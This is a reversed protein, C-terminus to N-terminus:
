QGCSGWGSLVAALDKGDVLGDNNTDANGTAGWQALVASLDKANVQGDGDIDAPCANGPDGLYPKAVPAGSGGMFSSAQDVLFLDEGGVGDLDGRTSLIPANAGLDTEEGITLPGGAGTTDIRVLVAASQTGVTRQVSVIDRDGDGDADILSVDLGSSAGLPAIPVASGFGGGTQGRFLTLVPYASGAGQLVPNANACVVEDKGDGDMDAVDLGVPEGPVNMVQTIGLLGSGVPDLVVVRGPESGGGVTTSSAGGTAVRRGRTTTTTPTSPLSVVQEVGGTSPSFVTLNDGSADGSGGTGVGIGGGGLGMFSTAPAIVCVSRPIGNPNLSLGSTFAPTQSPANNLYVQARNNSTTGVVADIKGDGNVDGVALCSPSSATSVQVSTTGLNGQGDNLLVQLTGPQGAGFDIALALDDFGDGDWDMAEAAVASGSFGGTSAGTLSTSGTLDLLRLSYLTQGLVGASPVLALFKGAPAPVTTQIIDFSGVPNGSRLVPIDLDAPLVSAGSGLLWIRGALTATGSVDISHDPQGSAPVSLDVPVLLTSGSRSVLSGAQADCESGVSGYTGLDVASLAGPVQPGGGNTWTWVGVNEWASGSTTLTATGVGAPNSCSSASPSLLAVGFSGAAIQVASSLGSPVATYPFEWGVVTGDSRLALSFNTGAAISVVESLGTPVNCEGGANSGWCAVRGNSLLAMSHLSGASVQVVPSFGGAQDIGLTPPVMSQGYHPFTTTSTVGAGWAAVTGDARIALSHYEGAAIGLVGNLGFPVVCQGYSNSGWCRLSGDVLLAMAHGATASIDRVTGLDAPISCASGWGIVSGDLKLAVGECGGGLQVKAVGGLGEPVWGGSWAKVTADQLVAMARGNFGVALQRAAFSSAPSELQGDDNAGWGDISGNSRVVVTSVSGAAIQVVNTLNSPVQTALGQPGWCLVSGDARLACSIRRGASIQTVDRLSPPTPFAQPGWCRVTGDLRLGMSIGDGASVQKVHGLDSPPTTQSGFSSGWGRVMGSSDIALVFDKGADVMSVVGLNSPPNCQGADNRGWCRVVGDRQLAVTFGNGLSVQKFLGVDSPVSCQQSSNDGWLVLLGDSKLAAVHYSGADVQTVSGLGVPQNLQGFSNGGWHAVTGDSRLAVTFDAGAAVAKFPLLSAVSPTYQDGQGLAAGWGVVQGQGYAGCALALATLSGLTGSLQHWAHRVTGVRDSRKIPAASRLLGTLAVGEARRSESSNVRGDRVYSAETRAKSM